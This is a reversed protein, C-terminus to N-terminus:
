ETLMTEFQEVARKNYQEYDVNMAQVKGDMFDLMGQYIGEASVDVLVGGYEQVFGRPGQVNTSITPMGITDAELLTLGLGEYYSSLIFLDCRRMVAIPNSMSRIVVINSLSDEAYRLTENYLPGYGGIIILYSNPYKKSFKEFAQMLMKHGKENSFRGVTIIKTADSDLIDILNEETVNSKTDPDFHVEKQAKERVTEYAHCNNIVKINSEEGGLERTSDILDKTVAAVTDYNRYASELTLRHQNTKTRLEELMDNHVYIIRKAPLEQFLRILRKEYGAFQIAVDIHISGFHKYAERKYMKDLHKQVFSNNINKREYLMLAIKEAITSAPRSSIPLFGVHEPIQQVRLPFKKLSDEMFSVYYNRKSLDINEFLNILSATLGNKALTSSYMVVTEKGSKPLKMEKCVKEGKIVHKCIREAAEPADYTCYRKLFETDDYAKPSKMEQALERSNKVIPFPFDELDKYMGRQQIYETEDYAFMIIKKRTNAFDFFVSSYDTILGDCMNMFEYADYQNPYPRIHKYGSLDIDKNVFPHLKIYLVQNDELMDDLPKMFYSISFILKDSEKKTLLGRWTPMYIFVKKNDLGLEKRINSGANEDFFVANRPYGECLITGQYLDELEYADVMRERMFDNPYVLYDAMLLNKQVNGMAYIRDEVDKGMKKLPTGHWTNTIIQGPKKIYIRELSTDTFIYKARSIVQFFRKSHLTVFEVKRFKNDAVLKQLEERKNKNVILCVKYDNYEPSSLAKLIHFINGALDGGNKSELMILKDDLSDKEYHKIYYSNNKCNKVVRCIRKISKKKM